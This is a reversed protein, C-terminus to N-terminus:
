RSGAETAVDPRLTLRGQGLVLDDDHRVEFYSDDEDRWVALLLDDGPVVPRTFRASMSAFRDSVGDAVVRLLLRGAYGYTCMGHLIPRDFGGRAAFAPDSHLPNRDGTLRYLLAQDRRVTFAQQHDPPRQPTVTSTSPGRDGGFGGEGRIFVTMRTTALPISGDVTATAETTILAGSGKDLVEVVEASVSASGSRPLPAHLTMEQSAHVLQTADIDGFPVSASRTIINAFTPLVAPRVGSSNETTLELERLPDDQGAGVALAYLMVDDESWRHEVPASRAGLLDDRLTM